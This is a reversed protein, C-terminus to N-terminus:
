PSLIMAEEAKEIIKAGRGNESIDFM